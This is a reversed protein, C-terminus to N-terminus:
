TPTIFYICKMLNTEVHIHRIEIKQCASIAHKYFHVIAKSKMENIHTRFIDLEEYRADLKGIVKNAVIKAFDNPDLQVLYFMWKIIQTNIKNQIDTLNQGGNELSM